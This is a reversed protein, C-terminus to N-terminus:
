SRATLGGHAFETHEFIHAACRKCNVGAGPCRAVCDPPATAALGLPIDPGCQCGRTCRRPWIKGCSRPSVAKLEICGLHEPGPLELRSCLRGPHTRASTGRAPPASQLAQVKTAACTSFEADLLQPGQM